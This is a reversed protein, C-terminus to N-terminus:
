VDGREWARLVAASIAEKVNDPVEVVPFWKKNGEPDTWENQPLSVWAAQGPQQIIRCSHIKLKGDIDVSAFGKFNGKNVPTIKTVTVNM